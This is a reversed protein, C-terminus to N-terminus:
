LYMLVSPGDGLLSARWLLQEEVEKLASANRLTDVVQCISLSLSLSLSLSPSLSLPLSLASANKLTDVV